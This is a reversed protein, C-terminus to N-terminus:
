GPQERAPFTFAEPEPASQAPRVLPLVAAVGRDPVRAHAHAEAEGLRQPEPQDIVQGVTRPVLGSRQDEPAFVLQVTQGQNVAELLDPKVVAAVSM